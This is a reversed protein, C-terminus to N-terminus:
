KFVTPKSSLAAFERMIELAVLDPIKHEPHQLQLAKLLTVKRKRRFPGHGGRNHPVLSKNAVPCLQQIFYRELKNLDKLPCKVFYIKDWNKKKHATYRQYLSSTQGVYIVTEGRVGFYIFGTMGELPLEELPFGLADVIAQLKTVM